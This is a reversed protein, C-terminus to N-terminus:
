EREYKPNDYSPMPLDTPLKKNAHTNNRNWLLVAIQWNTMSPNDTDSANLIDKVLQLENDDLKDVYKNHAFYANEKFQLCAKKGQSTDIHFHPIFGERGYVKIIVNDKRSIQSMEELIHTNRNDNDYLIRAQLDKIDIIGNWHDSLDYFNLKIWESITNYDEETLSCEGELIKPMTEDISVTITNGNPRDKYDNQVEIQYVNSKPTRNRGIDDVWVNVPLRTQRKLLVSMTSLKQEKMIMRKTEEIINEM